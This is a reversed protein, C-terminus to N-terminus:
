RFPVTNENTILSSEHSVFHFIKRSETFNNQVTSNLEFIQNFYNMFKTPKYITTNINATYPIWSKCIGEMTPVPMIKGIDPPDTEMYNRILSQKSNMLIEFDIMDYPLTAKKVLKYIFEIDKENYMHKAFKMIQM